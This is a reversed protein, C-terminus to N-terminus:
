LYINYLLISKSSTEKEEQKNVYANEDYLNMEDNEKYLTFVCSYIFIYLVM